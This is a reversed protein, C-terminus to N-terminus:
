GYHNTKEIWDGLPCGSYWKKKLGRTVYPLWGNFHAFNGNQDKIQSVDLQLIKNGREISKEYEYEVYDSEITHHTVLIVTVSTGELGERIKRKVYDPNSALSPEYLSDDWYGTVKAGLIRPQNRIANARWVDPDYKFAFFVHRVTIKM